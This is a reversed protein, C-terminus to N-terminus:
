GLHDTVGRGKVVKQIWGQSSYHLLVLQCHLPIVYHLYLYLGYHSLSTVFVKFMELPKLLLSVCDCGAVLKVLRSVDFLKVLRSVDFIIEGGTRAEVKQLKHQTAETWAQKLTSKVTKTKAVEVPSLGSDDVLTVNAGYELLTSAVQDHGNIAQSFLPFIDKLFVGVTSFLSNWVPSEM